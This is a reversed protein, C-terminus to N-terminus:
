GSNLSPMSCPTCRMGNLPMPEAAVLESRIWPRRSTTVTYGRETCFRLFRRTDQVGQAEYGSRRRPCAPCVM